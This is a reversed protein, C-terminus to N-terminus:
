LSEIDWLTAIVADRMSLSETLAEVQDELEIMRFITLAMHIAGAGKPHRLAEDVFQEVLVQMFEEDSSGALRNANIRERTHKVIGDIAEHAAEFSMCVNHACM